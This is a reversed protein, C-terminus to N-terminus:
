EVRAGSVRVLEGKAAFDAAIMEASVEPTAAHVTYGNPALHRDRIVPEELAAAVDQQIRSRLAAPTGAPAFLGFWTRPDAEPYGAEILTPVEPLLSLRTPRGVALARLAGTALFERASAVGALTGQVEGAVTALVAPTLGRYAVGAIEIGERAKLSEFLLHPQSGPGYSGYNLAGPRARAAAVLGALDRAPVAPNVLVMQHVDLLYSVPVLDRMPDHPLRAHIHPNATISSDSTMLLVHGDPAAKAVADTGPITAGGPRNDVTVTQRWTVSLRDALARALADLGGGPPYPVVIRVPRDPWAPQALAPRALFPAALFLRRPLM